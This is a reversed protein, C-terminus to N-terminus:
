NLQAYFTKYGRSIILTVNSWVTKGLQGALQKGTVDTKRSGSAGHIHVPQIGPIPQGDTLWTVTFDADVNQSPYPIHCTFKFDGPIMEPM